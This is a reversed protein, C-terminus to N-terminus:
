PSSKTIAMAHRVQRRASERGNEAPDRQLTESGLPRALALASLCRRLALIALLPGLGSAVGSSKGLRDTLSGPRLRITSWIRGITELPRYSASARLLRRCGQFAWLPSGPM